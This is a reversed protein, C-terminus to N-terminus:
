GQLISISGIVNIQLAKALPFNQHLRKPKRVVDYKSLL